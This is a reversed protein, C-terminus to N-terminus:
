KNSGFQIQELLFVCASNIGPMPHSIVKLFFIVNLKRDIGTNYIEFGFM